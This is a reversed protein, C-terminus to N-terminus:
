RLFAKIKISNDIDIKETKEATTTEEKVADENDDNNYNNQNNYDDNDDYDVYAQTTPTEAEGGIVGKDNLYWCTASAGAVALIMAGSFIAKAKNM